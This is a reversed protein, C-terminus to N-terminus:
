KKFLRLLEGIWLVISTSGIIILWDEIRLPTVNFFEGGISVIAIQGILIAVAIVVFGGAGKFHFASRGTQFARANFMNWFQLFVFITFFMSLEYATLTPGNGAAQPIFSFIETMSNVSYHEFIYLIGLLVLFFIGGVGIISRWMPRNIIFAERSRPKEKMVSASPPLSALAMAAFTDMILNVWLMQTVTLPSETGMFAGALVIFCAAV